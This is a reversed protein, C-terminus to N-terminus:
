WGRWNCEGEDGTQGRYGSFKEDREWRGQKWARRRSKHMRRKYFKGVGPNNGWTKTFRIHYDQTRERMFRNGM